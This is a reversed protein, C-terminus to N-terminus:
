VKYCRLWPQSEAAKRDDACDSLQALYDHRTLTRLETCSQDSKDLLAHATGSGRFSSTM